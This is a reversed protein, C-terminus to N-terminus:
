RSKGTIRGKLYALDDTVDNLERVIDERHRQSIEDSRNWRDIDTLLAVEELFISITGKDENREVFDNISSQFENINEVRDMAEPTDQNTYHEKIEVEEILKSVLTDAPQDTMKTLKKFMSVLSKVSKIARPPIGIKDLHSDIDLFPVGKESIYSFIM